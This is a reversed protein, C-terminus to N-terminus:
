DSVALRKEVLQALLTLPFLVGFYVIAVFSYVELPRYTAATIITGQYLLDAVAITSAIVSAALSPPTHIRAPCRSATAPPHRDHRRAPRM